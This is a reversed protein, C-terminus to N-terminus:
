RHRWRALAIREQAAVPGADWAQCEDCDCPGWVPHEGHPRDIPVEEYEDETDDFHNSPVVENPDETIMRAIQKPDITM